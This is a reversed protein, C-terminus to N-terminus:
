AKDQTDFRKYYEITCDIPTKTCIGDDDMDCGIETLEKAEAFTAPCGDSTLEKAMSQVAKELEKIREDLIKGNKTKM